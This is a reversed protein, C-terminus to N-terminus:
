PTEAAPRGAASRRLATWGLIVSAGAAVCTFLVASSTYHLRVGYNLLGEALFAAPLAAAGLLRLRGAGRRWLWGAAGSVPGGALACATWLLEYRLDGSYGRLAATLYYGAVECVCTVLGMAVARGVRRRVAGACFPPVLWPSAANALALWPFGLFAQLISTLAGAALGAIASIPAISPDSGPERPM